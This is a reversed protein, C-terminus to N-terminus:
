YQECITVTSKHQASHLAVQRPLSFLLGNMETERAIVIIQEM